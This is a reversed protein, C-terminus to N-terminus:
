AVRRMVYDSGDSSLLVSSSCSSFALVPAAAHLAPAHIKGNYHPDTTAIKRASKTYSSTYGRM